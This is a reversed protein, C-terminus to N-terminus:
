KEEAGAEGRRMARSRFCLLAMALLALGSGLMLWELPWVDALPGFLAMGLPLFGSYMAGMLGFVRGQMAPEAREQLLTTATTQVMTLAVGYLLMLALYLPFPRALGMGAALAGFAALGLCLTASRRRFGGWLSMLLGGGSMGLFGALEVATLYWYSEGFRRSVFLQALFGAPVCLLVFLGYVLLVARLAPERFAYGLGRAMAKFLRADREAPAPRPLKLLALLGIGLAATLIDALLTARLTSVALLAGAAAPAAFQVLSQMAANFGNYRMRHAEPVLTPIVANVAPAQLGAGLSRLASAALVAPLLAPGAEMRPMALALALTVLAIVADAGIILAKRSYRDAWAGGLFSMFFQPLWAAITFAAVWTGSSTRLAVYWVVAMQVLTSGFLTVCQSFLFLLARGRWGRRIEPKM